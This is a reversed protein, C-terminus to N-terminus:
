EAKTKKKLAVFEKLYFPEFYATNEFSKNIWKQYALFGMNKASCIVKEAILIDKRHAFIERTKPAGDGILIKIKEQEIFSEENLIIAETENIKEKRSTFSCAYVEMRRADIMPILLYDQDILKHNEIFPILEDSYCLSELTPVSILPKNLTYAYGKATSVGIRLGTYSGPGSSIAIADLENLKIGNKQCINEVFSHLLVSHNFASHDEMFDILRGENHLAISCVKTSTEISLIM